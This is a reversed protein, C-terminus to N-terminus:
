ARVEQAPAPRAPVPARRLLRLANLTVTLSSLAMGLAAIWPTVLGLAALPLAVVNYALAWAFNQRVIRRTRRALRVADALTMLREGALVIDAAQHALPAGGALAISVDAGALVPADNIGDGVMAVVRGEGQLTRLRALKDQPLLRGRADRVGVQAALAQVADAADGSAIEAGLGLARLAEVAAAADPRARDHLTFRALVRAGDGLWVGPADAGPAVFDRRGIRLARGDVTGTVGAGPHVEVASAQADAPVSEFARALPHRAARELAAAWQLAQDAGVGDFTDTGTVVPHGETLTGTKDFVVHDVRALTDLANEGLVLVGIRALAGNAAALAAPIALSLACPCTIVLLALVVEFTRDPDIRWWALGVALAVIFLGLVFWSAVGDAMRALQPRQAQAHEVLRLLHSLRTQQGTQAVRVLAPRAVCLSGAWVADGAVHTVPRSEGTLLAEDFEAADGDLVGDAPVPDGVAVRVRDGPQLQRSLVQESRGDPLVRTALSPRARALADVAFASRQRAMRELYRAALLFFVFMVAADFWVHAGGRLTEVLSAGYALLTSTAILTDMGFRRARLERWMGALFPWGSYFVVPSSVLFAIWRFFDRTAEPMENNTDLYLAEAFMMAQMTGLAAVGLRILLTNRERLRAADAEASDLLQPRYGLRHVRELLRSLPVQEPHWRLRMRGTAANAEIAEVGAERSLAQDLLWACAACRMGDVGIRLECVDGERHVHEAQVDARDWVTFDPLEAEVRNGAAAERLSYYADLGAERIWGAAAGCGTCCVARPAGDIQVQPPDPPLAEGCHFCREAAM